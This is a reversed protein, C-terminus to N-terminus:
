MLKRCSFAATVYPFTVEGRGRLDPSAAILSRVEGAVRDQSAEPLAAIFSVSLIRAVIVDEPTGTHGHPLFREALPTFGAAPFPQRWQMSRYRPVDSEYPAMIGTLGAVWAVSEDRVNWVLGLMGGPRLVRRIEAVVHESSFWHFAQACVVADISGDPLPIQGATGTRADVDPHERKLHALMEPVPEIATITAGTRRLVPMFKGTGAGLDVVTKAPGLRLDQHLWEQLADPYDPRGRVYTDTKAAYGAAASPHVKSM